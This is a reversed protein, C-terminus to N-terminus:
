IDSLEFGFSGQIISATFVRLSRLDLLSQGRRQQQSGLQKKFQTQFHKFCGATGHVSEVHSKENLLSRNLVWHAKEFHYNISSLCSAPVYIPRLCKFYNLITRSDALSFYSL